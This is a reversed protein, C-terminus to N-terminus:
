PSVSTTSTPGFARAEHEPEAATMVINGSKGAKSLRGPQYINMGTAKESSLPGGFLELAVPGAILLTALLTRRQRDRFTAVFALVALPVIAGLPLYYRPYADPLYSYTPLGDVIGYAAHHRYSFVAHICLTFFAVGFGAFIVLDSASAERRLIRLSAKQTVALGCLLALAPFILMMYNLTSRYGVPMWESLFIQAFRLAYAGFSMTAITKESTRDATVNTLMGIQGPTDPAPSGYQLIFAIYPASAILAAALFALAWWFRAARGWLMLGIVGAVFGGVLVLATLKACAAAIMAGLLAALWRSEGTAALRHAAFVAVSGAAIALNDPNVTGALSVFVPALLFPVVWAYQELRSLALSRGLALLAAFGCLAIAINIIRLATVSDPNGLVTPGLRALLHYYVPPHNLYSPAETFRFTVPELIRLTDLRPWFEGTTQLHAVYSLHTIEDFGCTVNHQWAGVLAGIVFVALFLFERSRPDFLSYTARSSVDIPFKSM